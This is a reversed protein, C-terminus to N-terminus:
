LCSGMCFCLATEKGKVRAEDATEKGKVRAEDATEKGKV